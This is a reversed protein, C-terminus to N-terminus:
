RIGIDFIKRLENYVLVLEKGPTVIWKDKETRLLQYLEKAQNETLTLKYNKQIEIMKMGEQTQGVIILCRSWEPHRSHWNKLHGRSEGMRCNALQVM